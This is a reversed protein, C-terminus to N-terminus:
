SIIGPCPMAPVISLTRHRAPFRFSISVLRISMETASPNCSFSASSPLVGNYKACPPFNRPTIAAASTTFGVLLSAIALSCSIPISTMISVPSLALVASAILFCTPMLVTIASTSGCSLSSFTRCSCSCPCLTAITPSPILSAGASALASTPIAIPAPVSTAISDASITSIFLSRISAADATLKLRATIRLM